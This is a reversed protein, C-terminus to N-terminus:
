KSQAGIRGRALLLKQLLAVDLIAISDFTCQAIRHSGV